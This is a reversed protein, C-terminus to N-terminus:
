AARGAAARPAPRRTRSGPWRRSVPGPVAEARHRVRDESGLRHEVAVAEDAAHRQAQRVGAVAHEHTAYRGSHMLQLAILGGAEHVATTVVRHRPLQDGTSLHAGHHRAAGELNPSVGGTVILGAGGRVREAYFAALEHEGGDKEELGTHMSGMIVRHPLITSGVTLPSLLHQYPATM